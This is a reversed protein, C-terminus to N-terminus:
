NQLSINDLSLTGAVEPQDNMGPIVVFSIGDIQSLCSNNSSTLVSHFQALDLRFPLQWGQANITIDVTQTLVTEGRNKSCDLEVQFVTGQPLPATSPTTLNASFVFQHFGTFDVTGLTAQTSVAFGSDNASDSFAFPAELGGTDGPYHTTDGPGPLCNAPQGGDRGVDTSGGDTEVPGADPSSTLTIGCTWPSFAAWTPPPLGATGDLPTFQDIWRPGPDVYPLNYCGPAVALAGLAISLASLPRV